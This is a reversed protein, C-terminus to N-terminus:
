TERNFWAGGPGAYSAGEGWEQQGEGADPDGGNAETGADAEAGTGEEGTADLEGTTGPGLDGESRSETAAAQVSAKAETARKQLDELQASFDM